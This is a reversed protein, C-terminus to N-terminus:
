VIFVYDNVVWNKAALVSVTAPDLNESGDNIIIEGQTQGTRDPLERAFEALITPHDIYNVSYALRINALQTARKLKLYGTFWIIETGAGGYNCGLFTRNALDIALSEGPVPSRLVTDEDFLALGVSPNLTNLTATYIPLNDDSSSSGSENITSPASPSGLGSTLDITDPM